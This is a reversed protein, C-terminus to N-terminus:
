GGVARGTATMARALPPILALPRVRVRVVDDKVDVELRSRAWGPLAERVAEQPDNGQLMAVAGAEAAHGALERAAGWALVQAVALALAVMLPTIAVLEVTAQGRQDRRLRM